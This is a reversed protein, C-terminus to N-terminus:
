RQKRREWAVLEDMYIDSARKTLELAEKIWPEVGLGETVAEKHAKTLREEIAELINEFPANYLESPVAM